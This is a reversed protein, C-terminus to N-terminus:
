KPEGHLNKTSNAQEWVIHDKKLIYYDLYGLTKGTAELAISVPLYFLARSNSRLTSRLMSRLMKFTNLVSGTSVKHGHHKELQLHGAHIRRRQKIFDSITDPGKNYVAAEPIYQVEYGAKRIKAEILAEDVSTLPLEYVIDKRFAVMEGMKPNELAIKHHLRWLLNTTFGMLTEPEDVPVPRAGTMGVHKDKFPVILYEVTNKGPITDGSEILVTTNNAERLFLNIASVKGERKEQVLVRIAPEQRKDRTEQRQQFQMAIEVTRDTCGSAVVIIEDLEVENLEQGLLAELLPGVNKEENYAFVGASCKIKNM